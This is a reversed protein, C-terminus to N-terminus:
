AVSVRIRGGAALKVARGFRHRGAPKSGEISVNVSIGLRQAIHILTPLDPNREGLELRAVAPQKWGLREALQRQTLNHDARFRVLGDALARGLATREWRARFEPDRLHGELVDDFTPLDRLRM